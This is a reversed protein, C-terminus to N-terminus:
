PRAHGVEMATLHDSTPPEPAPHYDYGGIKAFTHGIEARDAEGTLLVHLLIRAKYPDLYGARILGRALLDSESGPFAYTNKAVPGAGTRTALVVPIRTALHALTEVLDAPVHGVGFGAIVLGDVHEGVARLITNDQGLTMPLVAITPEVGVFGAFTAAAPVKLRPSRQWIRVTGESLNGIPGENASTFATVSTSHTKRVDRAAYVTDAFVVLVGLDHATPNAAVQVAALLNAPGDAGALGPHRMAGTVVIPATGTHLLDLLWSTEEITDTGQTVVAATIEATALRQEIANALDRIDAFSLSASPLQRVDHVQIDIAGSGLGPVARVLDAATLQPVVGSDGPARSTMAITGGLTFIGVIPRPTTEASHETTGM